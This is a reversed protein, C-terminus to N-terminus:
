APIPTELVGEDRLLNFLHVELHMLYIEQIQKDETAAERDDMSMICKRHFTAKCHICNYVGAVYTLGCLPCIENEENDSWTYLVTHQHQQNRVTVPFGLCDVHASFNCGIGICAYFSVGCPKVCVNCTRASDDEWFNYLRHNHYGPTDRSVKAAEICKLHFSIQCIGCQYGYKGMNQKCATCKSGSVLTFELIHSPHIPHDSM